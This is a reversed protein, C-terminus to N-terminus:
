YMVVTRKRTVSVNEHRGRLVHLPISRYIIFDMVVCKNALTSKYIIKIQVTKYIQCNTMYTVFSLITSNDRKPYKIFTVFINFVSLHLRSM